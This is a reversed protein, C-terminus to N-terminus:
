PAFNFSSHFQTFLSYLLYYLIIIKKVKYIRHSLVCSNRDIIPLYNFKKPFMKNSFFHLVGYLACM